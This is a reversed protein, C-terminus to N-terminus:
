PAPDIPNLRITAKERLGALFQDRRANGREQVLRKGALERADDSSIGEFENRHDEIYADVDQPPIIVFFYIRQNLFEAVRLEDAIWAHLDERGWGLRDLARTLGEPGGLTLTVASVRATIESADPVPIAFRDAEDLLLRRDVLARVADETPGEQSGSFTQYAVVDSLTVLRDNVSALVREVVLASASSATLAMVVWWASVASAVAAHPTRVRVGTRIVRTDTLRDHLARKSPPFAALVFGLGLPLWSLLYGAPRLLAQGWSPERGDLSVIRIGCLMKGPTQGGHRTFWSIYVWALGIWLLTFPGTLAEALDTSFFRADAARAGLSAGWAGVLAFGTYLLSVITWDFLMAVARRFVDAPRASELPAPPEPASTLLPSFADENSM